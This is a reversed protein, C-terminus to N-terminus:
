LYIVYNEVIYLLLILAKIRIKAIQLLTRKELGLVLSRANFLRKPATM